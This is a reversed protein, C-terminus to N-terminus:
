LVGMFALLAYSGKTGLEKHLGEVRLVGWEVFRGYNYRM